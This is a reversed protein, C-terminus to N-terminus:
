IDRRKTYCDDCTHPSRNFLTIVLAKKCYGCWSEKRCDEIGWYRTDQKADESAIHLVLLIAYMREDDMGRRMRIKRCVYSYAGEPNGKRLAFSFIRFVAGRVIAKPNSVLTGLEDKREPDAGKAVGEVAQRYEPLFADTV